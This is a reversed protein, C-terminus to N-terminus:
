DFEADQFELSVDENNLVFQYKLEAMLEGEVLAYHENWDSNIVTWWPYDTGAVDAKTVYGEVLVEATVNVDGIVTGGDFREHEDVTMSSLIPVVATVTANEVDSFEYEFKPAPGEYSPGIEEGVLLESVAVIKQGLLQDRSRYEDFDEGSSQAGEEAEGAAPKGEATTVGIRDSVGVVDIAEQLSRVVKVLNSTVQSLDASLKQHLLLHVPPEAAITQKKDTKQTFDSDASVFQVTSGDPQRAAIDRVTRWILADRYGKDTSDFPPHSDLSWAVLTEHTMTPIPGILIGARDLASRMRDSIDQRSALPLKRVEDATPADPFTIGARAFRARAKRLASAGESRSKEIQTAEQRALEHVVVDPVVFDIATYKTAYLMLETWPVSSLVNQYSWLVNTDIIVVHRPQEPVTLLM